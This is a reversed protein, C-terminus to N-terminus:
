HNDDATRSSRYCRLGQETLVLGEKLAHSDRQLALSNTEHDSAGDNTDAIPEKGFAVDHHLSGTGTPFRQMRPLEQTVPLHSVVKKPAIQNQYVM